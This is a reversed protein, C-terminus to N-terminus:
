KQVFQLDTIVYGFTSDSNPTLTYVATALVDSESDEEYDHAFYNVSVTYSDDENKAYEAVEFEPATTGWDGVCVLLSGDELPKIMPYKESSEFSTVDYTKGFYNNTYADLLDSPIAYGYYVADDETIEKAWSEDYAHNYIVAFGAMSMAAEPTLTDFTVDDGYFYLLGSWNLFSYLMPNVVDAVFDPQYTVVMPENSTETVEFDWSVDTPFYEDKLQGKLEDYPICLVVTGAAYPQLVYEQSIFRLGEKSFYFTDDTIVDAINEQYEPFFLNEEAQKEDALVLLKEKIFSTFKEQDDSLDALTIAEGTKMDFNVGSQISSGHAGGMYAEEYKVASFVTDDMRQVSYHTNYYYTPFAEVDGESDLYSYHEYASKALGSVFDGESDMEVGDILDRTNKYSTDFSKNIKEIAPEENNGLFPKQLSISVLETNGTPTRYSIDQKELTVQYAEQQLDTTDESAAVTSEVASSESTTNLDVVEKSTDAANGGCATVSLAVAGTMLLALFRKKM